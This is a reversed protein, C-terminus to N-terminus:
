APTQMTLLSKKMGPLAQRPVRVLIKMLILWRLLIRGWAWVTAGAAGVPSIRGRFGVAGSVSVPIVLLMRIRKLM